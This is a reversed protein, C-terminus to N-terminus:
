EKETWLEVDSDSNDLRWVRDTVRYGTYQFVIRDGIVPVNDAEYRFEVFCDDTIVEIIVRRGEAPM